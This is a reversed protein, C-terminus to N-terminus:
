IKISAENHFHSFFAFFLSLPSPFKDILYYGGGGM